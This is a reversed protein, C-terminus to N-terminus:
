QTAETHQYNEWLAAGQNCRSGYGAGRGAAICTKCGFHHAYYNAARNGNSTMTKLAAIISVKHDRILRRLDDNLRSAPTVLLTDGDGLSVHLGAAGLHEVITFTSM